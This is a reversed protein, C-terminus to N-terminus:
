VSTGPLLGNNPWNQCISNDWFRPPPRCQPSKKCYALIIPLDNLHGYNFQLVWFIRYRLEIWFLSVFNAPDNFLVPSSPYRLFCITGFTVALPYTASKRPIRREEDQKIMRSFKTGNECNSPRYFMSHAIPKNIVM